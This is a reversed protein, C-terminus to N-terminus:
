LRQLMQDLLVACEFGMAIRLGVVNYQRACSLHMDLDRDLLEFPLKIYLNFKLRGFHRVLFGDLAAGLGLALVLALRATAALVAVAPELYLRERAAAAELELVLDDAPCNRALEDRRDFLAHAVCQDFAVQGAKGHDVDSDRDKLAAIVVDVGGVHRELNRRRHAELRREFFGPRDDQLGSSHM